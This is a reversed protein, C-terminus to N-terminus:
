IGVVTWNSGNYRAKVNNAGGGAITAGWTATNSDSINVESGTPIGTPLTAFTYTAMLVVGASVEIARFNAASTLTPNIYLGRIIGNAGGTQNIDGSINLINTVATGSTPYILPYMEAVSRTGSTSAYTVTSRGGIYVSANGSSINSAGTLELWYSNDISGVRNTSINGNSATYLSNISYTGYINGASNIYLRRSGALQLNLLDSTSGSALNGAILTGAAAGVFFGSTSGDFAGSGFNVLGYNATATPAANWRTRANTWTYGKTTDLGIANGGSITTGRGATYTTGGSYQPINLTAGVLTAAGSTGTTTLSLTSQKANLANQLDTQNSLTGTISGWTGGSSTLIKRGLKGTLPNYGIITDGTFLPLNYFRVTSDFRQSNTFKWKAPQVLYNQGFSSFGILVLIIAIYKKM